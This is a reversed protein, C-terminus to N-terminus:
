SSVVEQEFVPVVSTGVVLEVVDEVRAVVSVVRLVALGDGGPVGVELGQFGVGLGADFGVGGAAGLVDPGAHEWQVREGRVALEVGGLRLGFEGVVVVAADDADFLVLAALGDRAQVAPVQKM